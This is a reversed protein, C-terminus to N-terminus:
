STHVGFKLGILNGVTCYLCYSAWYFCVEEGSVYLVPAAKDQGRGEAIM